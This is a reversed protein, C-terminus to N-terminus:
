TKVPEAEPTIQGEVVVSSKDVTLIRVLEIKAVVNSNYVPVM